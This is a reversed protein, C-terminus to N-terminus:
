EDSIIEVKGLYLLMNVKSLSERGFERGKCLGTDKQWFYNGVSYERGFECVESLGTVILWFYNGVWRLVFAHGSQNFIKLGFWLIQYRNSLYIGVLRSVFPHRSQHFIKQLILLWQM